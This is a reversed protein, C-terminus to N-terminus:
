KEYRDPKPLRRISRARYVNTGNAVYHEDSQTCRGLWIGHDWAISTKTPVKSYHFLATEGFECITKNYNSGWRREFSTKGDSHIQYRNHLWSAHKTIWTILPSNSNLKIGYNQNITEKLIKIHGWLESHWRQVSGQSRSSYTPALRTSMGIKTAVTRVLAM